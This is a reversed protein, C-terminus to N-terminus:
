PEAVAMPGAGTAPPGDWGPVPRLWLEVRRNVQRGAATSDCAMPLAEGYAETGPLDSEALDPAIRALTARVARARDMSLALNTAAAGSGDSFGAFALTYGDFARAAILQALDSLNTESQPDLQSSGDAFRFTFSLREGGEMAAALRQLEALPVEPGANRIAGLLRQGDATLPARVPRRDVLGTRGVAAQAADTALFELFERLILPLRRRPTLLHWTVALPYDGAKLSLDTAPLPFGCSDTLPLIRAQGSDRRVSLALAWPDRAVAMALGAADPHIATAPVAAGLRAAVAAQLADEDPLAHLVLPRDPGGLDSWNPVGGALARALDPSATRPLHNDPSVLPVLADTGVARANVGPPVLTAVAMQARGDVLAARAEAPTAPEFAIEALPQGTAPDSLIALFGATAAEDIALGRAQAFASWLRRMLAQGPDAAGTVRLVALPATLDPCAPGTCIVGEADVTLMGYATDIRFVEGDFALLNGSISLGGDRATLTADQAVAATAWVAMWVMVCARRVAATM